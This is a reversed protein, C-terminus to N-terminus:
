VQRFRDPKQLRSKKVDFVSAMSEVLFHVVTSFAKYHLKALHILWIESDFDSCDLQFGCPKLSNTRCCFPFYGASIKSLPVSFSIQILLQVNKNPSLTIKEYFMIFHSKHDQFSWSLIPPHRLEKQDWTHTVSLDFM